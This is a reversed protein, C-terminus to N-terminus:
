ARAERIAILDKIKALRVYLPRLHKKDDRTTKKKIIRLGGLDVSKGQVVSKRDSTAASTHASASVSPIDDSAFRADPM